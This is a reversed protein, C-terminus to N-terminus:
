SLERDLFPNQLEGLNTESILNALHSSALLFQSAVPPDM